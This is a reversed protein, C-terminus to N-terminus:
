RQGGKMREKQLIMNLIWGISEASSGPTAWRQTSVLAQQLLRTADPVLFRLLPSRAAITIVFACALVSQMTMWTYQTRERLQYAAMLIYQRCGEICTQSLRLVYDPFGAGAAMSSYNEPTRYSAAFVLCPRCIIHKASWYRLRLWGEQLCRPQPNALDPKISPPLSDFWVDLQSILETCVAKLSEITSFTTPSSFSSFSLSPFSSSSSSSSIHTSTSASPSQTTPNAVTISAATMDPTTMPPWLPCTSAMPPTTTSARTSLSMSTSMGMSMSVPDNRSGPRPRSSSSSMTRAKYNADYVTKHVRNLLRRISCMALFMMGSRGAVDHGNDTFSPFPMSDIILEMGSRPLHFEALADCELLFCTWCLRVVYDTEDRPM